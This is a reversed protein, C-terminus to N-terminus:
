DGILPSADIPMYQLISVTYRKCGFRDEVKHHPLWVRLSQTAMGARLAAYPVRGPPCTILGPMRPTSRALSSVCFSQAEWPCGRHGTPSVRCDPPAFRRRGHTQPVCLLTLLAWCHM